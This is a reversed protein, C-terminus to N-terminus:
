IPVDYSRDFILPRGITLLRILWYLEYGRFGLIYQDPQHQIRIKLLNICTQAYRWFNTTTNVATYVEVEPIKRLGDIITQSRVYAPFYYSLIYCVRIRKVGALKKNM